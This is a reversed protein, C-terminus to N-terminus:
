KKSEKKKSNLTPASKFPIDFSSGDHTKVVGDIQVEFGVRDCLFHIYKALNFLDFRVSYTNTSRDRDVSMATAIGAAEMAEFAVRDMFLTGYLRKNDVLEEWNGLLKLVSAEKPSLIRRPSFIM